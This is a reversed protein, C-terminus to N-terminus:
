PYAIQYYSLGFKSGQKAVSVIDGITAAKGKTFNTGTKRLIPMADQFKSLAAAIEKIDESM